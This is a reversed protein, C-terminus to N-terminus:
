VRHVKAKGCSLFWLGLAYCAFPRPSLSERGRSFAWALSQAALPYSTLM